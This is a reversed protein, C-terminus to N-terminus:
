VNFRFHMVDGDQVVYNRGELRLKGAEKVAHETGFEILDSCHYVEAQIFGRQLDTHIKGAASVAQTGDLIEWARVEATSATFYTIQNLLEYGRFIVQDLGSQDIKLDDLFFRADEKEMESLESELKACIPIVTLKEKEAFDKFLSLNSGPEKLDKETVNAVYFFPKATLLQLQAILRLEEDNPSFDRAAHGRVLHDQLREFLSLAMIEDKEGKTQRKLHDLKREVQNLDALILETEIVEADGIPDTEGMFHAINENEFCRVVHLIAHVERIHSLFQNGLGEGKSAGHVLGAIDVVKLTASICKEPHLLDKLAKLRDDQIPVIGVNPDITCFPYNGVEAEIRTLARFLTSKGVNPLGVIGVALSM